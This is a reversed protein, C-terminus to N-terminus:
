PTVGGRPKKPPATPRPRTEVAGAKPVAVPTTVDMGPMNGMGGLATGLNSEADVLFTASAVVTDGLALGRLIEIRDDSLAGITVTRPELEGNMLREFVLQREGTALVAGRPVTLMVGQGDSEVVLTAYMGPKLRSASNSLAVRVRATRTESSLTPYVYALRGVMSVGPLADFTAVVHQGVRMAGLDREYVESEVWVSSLDAVRYLADGAMVRQGASVNKELVVGGAPAYMTLARQAAGNREIRAIDDAAIDWWLLRRRSAQVLDAAGARTDEGSAAVDRALKLALLLEEQATVLMPSYLTLLPAGRAIRQGAFDVYLREVWGDVKLAITRVRTEDVMVQGVARITRGLPQETVPAFTVGIRRATASDVMVSRASDGSAMGMAAHDVPGAAASPKAAPRTFWWALAIALIPMVVLLIRRPVKGPATMM